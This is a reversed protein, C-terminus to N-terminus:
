AGAWDVHAAAGVAAPPALLMRLRVPQGRRWCLVAAQGFDLALRDAAAQDIDTLLWGPERWQGDPASGWAPQRAIGAANLRAVLAADAAENAADSRPESAPNWASIVVYTDAPLYAELDPTPEGVRLAIADGDVVVAYAAAAYLAALEAADVIQIERM